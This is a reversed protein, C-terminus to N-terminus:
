FDNLQMSKIIKKRKNKHNNAEKQYMNSIKMQRAATFGSFFGAKIETVKSQIAKVKFM